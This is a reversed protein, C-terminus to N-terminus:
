SSAGQSAGADRPVPNATYDKFIADWLGGADAATIDGGLEDRRRAWWSRQANWGIRYADGWGYRLRALASARLKAAVDEGAQPAGEDMMVGPESDMVLYTCYVDRCAYGPLTPRNTRGPEGVAM